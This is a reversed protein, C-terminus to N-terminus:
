CSSRRSPRVPLQNIFGENVLASIDVLDLSACNPTPTLNTNCIEEADGEPIVLDGWSGLNEVQYSLFTNFLTSIHRERTADRAQSFQRGPNITVIVAAALIAIIGIVILLEILTFGEKKM